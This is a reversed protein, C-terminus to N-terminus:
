GLGDGEEDEVDFMGGPNVGGGGKGVAKHVDATARGPVVTGRRGWPGAGPGALSGGPGAGYSGDPGPGDGYSGGGESFISAHIATGDVDFGAWGWGSADKSISHQQAHSSSFPNNNSNEFPSNGNTNTYSYSYPSSASPSASVPAPASHSLSNSNARSNAHAHASPSTSHSNGRSNAQSHSTANSSSVPSALPYSTQYFRAYEAAAPSSSSSTTKPLALGLAGVDVSARRVTPYDPLPFPVTRDVGKGDGIGNGASLSANRGYTFGIEIDDVAAIPYLSAELPPIASRRRQRTTDLPDVDVDDDIGLGLLGSGPGSRSMGGEEGEEEEDVQTPHRTTTTTTADHSNHSSSSSLTFSDFSDWKHHHHHPERHPREREKGGRDRDRRDRAPLESVSSLDGGGGDLLDPHASRGGGGRHRRTLSTTLHKTSEFLELAAHLANRVSDPTFPPTLLGHAGDEYAAQSIEPPLHANDSYVARPSFIDSLYFLLDKM